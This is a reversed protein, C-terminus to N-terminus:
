GISLHVEIPGVIIEPFIRLMKALRTELGSLATAECIRRIVLLPGYTDFIALDFQWFDAPHFKALMTWEHWVTDYLGNSNAFCGSSFVIDTYQDLVFILHEGYYWLMKQSQIKSHFTKVHSRVFRISIIRIKQAFGLFFQSFRLSDQTSPSLVTFIALFLSFADSYQMLFYRILTAIKQVLFGAKKDAAIISNADFIDGDLRHGFMLFATFEAESFGYGIISPAKKHLHKGILKDPLSFMQNFDIFPIGAALNTM